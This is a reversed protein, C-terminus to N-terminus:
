DQAADDQTSGQLAQMFALMAPIDGAQGGGQAGFFAKRYRVYFALEGVLPRREGAALLEYHQMVDELTPLAGNHMYPRYLTVNRLGPTKFAGLAHSSSQLAPVEQRGLDVDLPVTWGRAAAATRIRANYPFHEPKEFGAQPVAINHFADDTFWPPPHCVSCNARGFFLAMGGKQRPTLASDDGALWRDFPADRSILTREYAALAQSVTVPTITGSFVNAFQEGYQAWREPHVTGTPEHRGTRLYTLVATWTNGMETPSVVPMLAQQELSQVRGDWFLHRRYAANYLSPARRRGKQGECGSPIPEPSAYGHQPQHCSACAVTGCRSLNPDFFLLQGLAIKEPTPPNHWPAAFAAMPSRSRPHLALIHQRLVHDRITEALVSPPCLTLCVPLYFLM